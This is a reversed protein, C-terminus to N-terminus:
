TKEDPYHTVRSKTRTLFGLFYCTNETIVINQAMRMLIIHSVPNQGPSFGLFYCINETIVINQKYLEWWSLTHRPTKDQHSFGFFLLYKWNHSHKTCNEDPYHTVCFKTRTLFGLFYCINETIVINQAIRM